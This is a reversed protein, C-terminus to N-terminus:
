LQSYYDKAKKLVDLNNLHELRGEYGADQRKKIMREFTLIENGIAKLADKPTWGKNKITEKLRNWAMNQFHNDFTPEKVESLLFKAIKILQCAIVDGSDDESSAGYDRRTRLPQPFM